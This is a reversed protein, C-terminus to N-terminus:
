DHPQEDDFRVGREAGFWRVFEILEGMEDVTMRSTPTGLMVFGGNVGAAIRSEKKVGATLIVKWDEPILAQEVGDVPWRVQESVARLMSWLMANQDLSRRRGRLFKSSPPCHSQMPTASDNTHQVSSAM